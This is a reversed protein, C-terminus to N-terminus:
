KRSNPNPNPDLQTVGRCESSRKGGSRGWRRVWEGEHVLMVLMREHVLMSWNTNQVNM